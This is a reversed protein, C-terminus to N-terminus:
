KHNLNLLVDLTEKATKQWSFKKVQELGRKIYYDSLKRDTLLADMAGAFEHAKHPNVALAAKGTAEPLSACFSTIVPVGCSMAELPPFGFGEFFSPYVFLSAEQYLQLRKENSVTGLFSIDRHPRVKKSLFGPGAIILTTNKHSSMRKLISFAHILTAINKRGEVSGLYLIVPGKETLPNPKFEEGVGSYITHIKAPAIGYIDVLDQKTSESVAIIADAQSAIARPKIFSHWFREKPSLLEPYREYSLDHFTTVIKVGRSVPFLNLNPAFFITQGRKGGFFSDLAPYSFFKLSANLLRNPYPLHFDSFYARFPYLFSLDPREKGSSFLTIKANRERLNKGFNEVIHSVLQKTYEPIGTAPNKPLLSRIDIILHRPQNSM